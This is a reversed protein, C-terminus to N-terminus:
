SILCNILSFLDLHMYSVIKTPNLSSKIKMIKGYCDKKWMLYM